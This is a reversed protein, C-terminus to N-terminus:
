FFRQNYISFFFLFHNNLLNELLTLYFYIYVLNHSNSSLDFIHLHFFFFSFLYTFSGSQFSYYDVSRPIRFTSYFLVLVPFTEKIFSTIMYINSVNFELIFQTRSVILLTNCRDVFLFYSLM